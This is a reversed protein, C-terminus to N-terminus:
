TSTLRPLSTTGLSCCTRVVCSPIVVRNGAGMYGLKWLIFKRYAMHRLTDANNPDDHQNCYENHNNVAVQLAPRSLVLQHLPGSQTVTICPGSRKRCCLEEQHTPMVRCRGCHCWQPLLDPPTAQPEPSMAGAVLDPYWDVLKLMLAKLDNVPMATVQISMVNYKSMM